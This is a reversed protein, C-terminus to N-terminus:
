SVRSLTFATVSLRSDDITTRISILFSDYCQFFAISNIKYCYKIFIATRLNLGCCRPLSM